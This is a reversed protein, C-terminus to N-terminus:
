KRRRRCAGVDLAGYGECVPIRSPRGAIVTGERGVPESGSTLEDLTDGDPEVAAAFREGRAGTGIVAGREPTGDRDFM